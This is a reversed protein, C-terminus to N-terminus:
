NTRHWMECNVSVQLNDTIITYCELLNIIWNFNHTLDTSKSRITLNIQRTVNKFFGTFIQWHRWIYTFKLHMWAYMSYMCNLRDISIIWDVSIEHNSVQGKQKNHQCKAMSALIRSQQQSKDTFISAEIEQFLHFSFLNAPLFLLLPHVISLIGNSINGKGSWDVTWDVWRCKQPRLDTELCRENNQKSRWRTFQRLCIQFRALIKCM